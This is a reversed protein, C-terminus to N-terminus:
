ATIGGLAKLIVMTGCQASVAYPDWDGDGVYKGSHYATSFSWLYPSKVEPHYLRYGWGNYGEFKYACGAISWDTWDDFGDYELADLASFDWPFPPAGSAPRGAPVNVTRASLPDGNHLHCHYDSSAELEQLICIIRAPVDTAEAVEIVDLRHEAAKVRSAIDAVQQAYEPRVEAMAYLANYEARLAPTLGDAPAWPEAPGAGMALDRVLADLDAADLAARTNPGVIGDATVGLALQLYEVGGEATALLAQKALREDVERDPRPARLLAALTELTEAIGIRDITM